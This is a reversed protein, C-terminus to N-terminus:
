LSKIWTWYPSVPSTHEGSLASGPSPSHLPENRSTWLPASFTPELTAMWLKMWSNMWGHKHADALAQFGAPRPPPYFSPHCAEPDPCSLSCALAARVGVLLLRPPRAPSPPVCFQLTRHLGWAPPFVPPPSPPAPVTSTLPGSSPCSASSLQSIRNSDRGTRGSLSWCGMGCGRIPSPRSPTAWDQWTLLQHFRGQWIPKGGVGEGQRGKQEGPSTPQLRSLWGGGPAVSMQSNLSFEPPAVAFLTSPLLETTEPSM